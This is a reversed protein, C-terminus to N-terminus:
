VALPWDDVELAAIPLNAVGMRALLFHQRNGEFWTAREEEVAQDVVAGGGVVAGQATASDLEVVAGLARALAAFFFPQREKAFFALIHGALTSQTIKPCALVFLYCLYAGM